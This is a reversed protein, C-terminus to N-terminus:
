KLTDESSIPDFTLAVKVTPAPPAPTPPVAVPPAALTSYPNPTMVPYSPPDVLVVTPSITVLAEPVSEVLPGSINELPVPPPLLPPKWSGVICTGSTSIRVPVVPPLPAVAVTLTLLPYTSPIM